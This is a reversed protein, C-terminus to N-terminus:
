VKMATEKESLELWRLEKKDLKENIITFRRSLEQITDFNLTADHLKETVQEKEKNLDRIEKELLDLERKENYSLKPKLTKDTASDKVITQKVSKLEASETEDRTKLWQQYLGYNGPYDRIVGNGEFVFLHEVMRDMFYRDHSVM